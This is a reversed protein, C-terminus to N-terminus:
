LGEVDRLNLAEQLRQIVRYASEFVQAESCPIKAALGKANVNYPQGVVKMINNPLITANTHPLGLQQFLNQVAELTQLEHLWVSHYHVNPFESEPYRKQFEEQKLFHDYMYWQVRDLDGDLPIQPATALASSPEILWDRHIAAWNRRYLSCITEWSRYLLIIDIRCEKAFSDMVVDWFDKIFGHSTEAYVRHQGLVQLIPPIKLDRRSEYTKNLGLRKAEVLTSGFMTPKREHGASVGPVCALLEALYGSGSRGPNISFILHCPTPVLTTTTATATVAAIALIVLIQLMSIKQNM